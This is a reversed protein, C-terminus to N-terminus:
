GTRRLRSLLGGPLGPPMYPWSLIELWGAGPVFREALLMPQKPVMQVLVLLVLCVVFAVIGHRSEKM